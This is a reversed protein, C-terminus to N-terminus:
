DPLRYLRITCTNDPGKGFLQYGMYTCVQASVTNECLGGFMCPTAASLHYYGQVIAFKAAADRETQAFALAVGAILVFASFATHFRTKM